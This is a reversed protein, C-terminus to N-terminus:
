GPTGERITGFSCDFYLQPEAGYFHKAAARLPSNAGNLDVWTKSMTRAYLMAQWTIWPTIGDDRWSDSAVSLVFNSEAPGDLVVIAAQIEDEDSPTVAILSGAGSEVLGLIRQLTPYGVGSMAGGTRKLGQEHLEIIRGPDAGHVMVPPKASWRLIDRRRNRAFSGLPASEDAFRSLNIRATYRPTIRFGAQGPHDFNWWHFVRTDSVGLPLSFSFPRRTATIASVLTSLVDTWVSLYRHYQEGSRLSRVFM